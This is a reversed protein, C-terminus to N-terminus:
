LVRRFFAVASFEMGDVSREAISEGDTVERELTM